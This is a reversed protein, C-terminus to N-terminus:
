CIARSEAAELKEEALKLKQEYVRMLFFDSSVEKGCDECQYYIGRNLKHKISELKHTHM